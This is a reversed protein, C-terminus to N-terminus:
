IETKRFLPSFAGSTKKIEVDISKSPASKLFDEITEIIDTDLFKSKTGDIILTSNSPVKELATRLSLKHVFSVDKTFKLLYQHNHNVLIVATQFNTKLVFFISVLLGIGIGILLNSLLVAVITVLFPLFQDMGKKYTEHYISPANLKYGVLLLIGALCALPIMEIIHPILLIVVLLLIGHTIASAKTRGGALVNASSRVIVATIPLGGILGSIINSFGQSKLEANLPTIRRYPDLKDTAEVSLLSEVSAVLALTIAIRYVRPDALGTFDPFVLLKGLSEFGDLGGLKVLHSARIELDPAFAAFFINVGIGLVVVILPAPVFNTWKIRRVAPTSWIILTMITVASVLLAGPAMHDIANLIESFTNQNDSQFFNEDGEFDADFGLAHPVQKLILILGISALMGKIVAVPFFHGIAGARAFGMLMQIAGAMVVCLLFLPFSGLEQISSLVIATLGAAPGSVSLPSKSLFGTVIGGVVGAILGALLPAGSALAIGLCLPIAVLLVVVSAPLDTLIFVKLSGTWDASLKGIPEVPHNDKM